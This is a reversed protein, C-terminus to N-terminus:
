PAWAGMQTMWCLWPLHSISLLTSPFRFCGQVTATSSCGIALIPNPDRGWCRAAGWASPTQGWTGCRVRAPPRSRWLPLPHGGGGGAGVGTAEARGGPQLLRPKRTFPQCNLAGILLQFLVFICVLPPWFNGALSHRKPPLIMRRNKHM